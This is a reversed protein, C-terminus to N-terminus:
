LQGLRPLEGAWGLFNSDLQAQERVSLPGSRGLSQGASMQLDVEAVSFDPDHLCFLRERSVRHAHALGTPFGGYALEFNRLHSLIRAPPVRNSAFDHGGAAWVIGQALIPNAKHGFSRHPDAEVAGILGRRNTMGDGVAAQSHLIVVDSGEVLLNLDARRDGDLRLGEVFISCNGPEPAIARDKNM